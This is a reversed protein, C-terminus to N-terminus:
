SGFSEPPPPGWQALPTESMRRVHTPTQDNFVDSDTYHEFLNGFPDRWYDFVQSGLLHRGVGWEHRYGKGALWKGGQWVADIDQVEFAAHRVHAVGNRRQSIAVSHHDVYDGGRDFRLFALRPQGSRDDGVIDSPVMGLRDCLLELAQAADPVGFVVHGLRIVQTPGSVPEHANGLRQKATGHNVTLPARIPLPEVPAAGLVLDISCGQLSNLRVRQGGGLADVPEIPLGGLERVARDLDDASAVHLGIGPARVGDALEAVCACAATGLARAYLAQASRHTVELGFDLLFREAIELDPVPYRFYALSLTRISM